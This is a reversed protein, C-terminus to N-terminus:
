PRVDVAAQGCHAVQGLQPRAEHIQVALVRVLAQKRRRLLAVREIAVAAGIEARQAGSTSTEGLQICCKGRQTAVALRSGSLEVQQAELSSLQPRGRNRRALLVCVQIGLEVLQSAGHLIAFQASDRDIREGVLATGAVGDRGGDPCEGTARREGLELRSQTAQTGFHLIDGGIKTPSRLVDLFVRLPQVRHAAPQLQQAIQTALVAVAQRFHDAEM